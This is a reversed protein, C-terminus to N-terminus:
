GFAKSDLERVKAALSSLLKHALGPVEDIIGSFERQGLVLVEMDTEAQVTATRPGRDLLALEGFTDGPGFTAVKRGNRKVVATGDLIVFAERGTREQEVLVKGSPVRIEDSAKAIKQLERTSLASFLPVKSLHDTHSKRAM